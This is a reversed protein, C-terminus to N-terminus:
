SSKIKILRERHKRFDFKLIENRVDETINLFKLGISYRKAKGPMPHVHVVEGHLHLIKAPYAQLVIRIELVDGENVPEQTVLAMGSGSINLPEFKMSVFDGREPANM